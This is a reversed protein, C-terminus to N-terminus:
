SRRRVKRVEGVGGGACRGVREGKGGQGNGGKM